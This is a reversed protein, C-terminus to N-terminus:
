SGNIIYIEYNDRTIVNLLVLSDYVLFITKVFGVNLSRKFSKITETELIKHSITGSTQM